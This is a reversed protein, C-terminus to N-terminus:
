NTLAVSKYDVSQLNLGTRTRWIMIGAGAPKKM